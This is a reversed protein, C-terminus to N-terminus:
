ARGGGNLDVGAARAERRLLDAMAQALDEPTAVSPAPPSPAEVPKDAAISATLPAATGLDAHVAPQPETVLQERKAQGLLRELGNRPHPAPPAPVPPVALRPQREEPEERRLPRVPQPKSASQGIRTLVAEIRRVAITMSGTDSHANAIQPPAEGRLIREIEVRHSQSAPGSVPRALAAKFDSSVADSWAQRPAISKDLTERVAKGDRRSRWEPEAPEPGPAKPQAGPPTEMSSFARLARIVVDRERRVDRVPRTAEPLAAGREPAPITQLQRAKTGDNQAVAMDASQRQPESLRGFEPDYPAARMDPEEAGQRLALRAAIQADASNEGGLGKWPQCDMLAHDSLSLDAFGCLDSARDLADAARAIARGGAALETVFSRTM